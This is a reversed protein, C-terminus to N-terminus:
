PGFEWRLGATVANGFGFQYISPSIAFCVREVPDLRGGHRRREGGLCGDGRLHGRHPRGRLVDM